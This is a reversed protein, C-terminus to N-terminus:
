TKEILIKRSLRYKSLSVTVEAGFLVICWSMYVWVFLIPIVALVGYILQYSPFMTIYMSFLKKGFEFLVAATVAGIAADFVPVQLNPVLCYVLWFTTFSLLLPFLHLIHDLMLPIGMSNLWNQSLLITSITISGGALIPGLTLVMWYIAFSYMAPRKTNVRWIINLVNDIASILLLSTVILGCIGVATMQSSNAVFQELYKQITDSATPVFNSFIFSKLQNSIDTFMPFAAFLSFIVTILPVLSLLSVYALYSALITLRDEKIRKILLSFYGGMFFFFRILPFKSIFPM